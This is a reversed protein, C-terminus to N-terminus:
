LTLRKFIHFFSYKMEGRNYIKCPKDQISCTSKHNYYNFFYTKLEMIYNRAM